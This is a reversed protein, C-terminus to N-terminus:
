PDDVVDHFLVNYQRLHDKMDSIDEETWILSPKILSKFLHGTFVEAGSSSLSFRLCSIPFDCVDIENTFILKGAPLSVILKHSKLITVSYLQNEMVAM